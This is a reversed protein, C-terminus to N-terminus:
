STPPLVEVWIDAAYYCVPAGEHFTVTIEAENVYGITATWNGTKSPIYAWLNTGDSELTIDGEWNSDKYHITLIAPNTLPAQAWIKIYTRCKYEKNALNETKVKFTNPEEWYVTRNWPAGETVTLRIPHYSVYIGRLQLTNSAVWAYAITALLAALLTIVLTTRVKRQM